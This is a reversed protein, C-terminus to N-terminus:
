YEDKEACHDDHLLSYNRLIDSYSGRKRVCGLVKKDESAAQDMQLFDRDAM